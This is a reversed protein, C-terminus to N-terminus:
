FTRSLQFVSKFVCCLLGRRVDFANLVKVKQLMFPLILNQVLESFFYVFNIQLSFFYKKILQKM